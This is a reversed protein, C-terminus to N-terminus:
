PDQEDNVELAILTGATVVKLVSGPRVYPRRTLLMSTKGNDEVIENLHFGALALVPNVYIANLRVYLVALVLFLVVLAMAESPQQLDIGLFPFLYAFLYGLVDQDRRVASSVRIRMRNLTTLRRVFWGLWGVSVLATAGLAVTSHWEGKNQIALIVLLPSYSSLLLM